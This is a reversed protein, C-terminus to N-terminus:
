KKVIIFSFFYLSKKKWLAKTKYSKFNQFITSRPRSRNRPSTAPIPAEPDAIWNVKSLAPDWPSAETTFDQAIELVLRQFPLKQILLETSKQYRRIERLAVTGPRYRHPKKVGGIASCLKTCVPFISILINTSRCLALAFISTWKIKFHRQHRWILILAISSSASIKSGAFM